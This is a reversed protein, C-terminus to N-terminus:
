LLERIKLAYKMSLIAWNTRRGNERCARIIEQNLTINSRVNRTSVGGTRMVVLNDDIKRYPLRATAIFRMLLEFDAAIRYDEKYLGLREYQERKVFFTPHAPMFGFHFRREPADPSRYRRVTRGTDPDIFTLNGFVVQVGSTDFTDMVRALIGAHPYFDDANLTGVVDGTCLRVGKNMANYIGKDPESVWYAIRDEYRRIIDVTGDTSGGDVVIYEVNPYDQDLVSRITDEIHRAGNYVVTVISVRAAATRSAEEGRHLRYGGEQRLDRESM